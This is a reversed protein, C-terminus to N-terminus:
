QSFGRFQGGRISQDHDGEDHQDLLMRVLYEVVENHSLGQRRLAAYGDTASPNESQEENATSTKNNDASNAIPTVSNEAQQILEERNSPLADAYGGGGKHVVFSEIRRSLTEDAGDVHGFEHALLAQDEVNFLNFNSNVVIQDDLTAARANIKRLFEDGLPGSYVVGYPTETPVLDGAFFNNSFQEGVVEKKRSM